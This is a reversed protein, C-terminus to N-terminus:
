VNAPSTIKGTLASAAAVAPGAVIYLPALSTKAVTLQLGSIAAYETFLVALAAFARLGGEAALALDDACSRICIDPCLCRLWWLM